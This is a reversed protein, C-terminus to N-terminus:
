IYIVVFNMSRRYIRLLKKKNERRKTDRRKQLVCVWERKRVHSWCVRVCRIQSESQRVFTFQLQPRVFLLLTYFYSRYGDSPRISGGISLAFFFNETPIRFVAAVFGFVPAFHRTAQNVAKAAYISYIPKQKCFMNWITCKSDSWSFSSQCGVRGSGSNLFLCFIRQVWKWQACKDTTPHQLSNWIWDFNSVCIWSSGRLQSPQIM